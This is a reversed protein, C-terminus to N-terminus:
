TRNTNEKNTSTSADQVKSTSTKNLVELPQLTEISAMDDVFARLRSSEVSRLREGEEACDQRDKVSLGVAVIQDESLAKRKRVEAFTM